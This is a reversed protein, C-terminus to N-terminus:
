TPWFFSRAYQVSLEAWKDYDAHQGLPLAQTKPCLWYAASSHETLSKLQNVDLDSPACLLLLVSRSPATSALFSALAAQQIVILQEM